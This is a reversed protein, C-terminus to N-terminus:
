PSCITSSTDCSTTSTVTIYCKRLQFNDLLNDVYDERGVPVRLLSKSFSKCCATQGFQVSELKDCIAVIWGAWILKLFLSGVYPLSVLYRKTKLAQVTKGTLLRSPWYRHLLSRMRVISRKSITAFFCWFSMLTNEKLYLFQKMMLTLEKM